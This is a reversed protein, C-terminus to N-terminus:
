YGISNYFAAITAYASLMWKFDQFGPINSFKGRNNLGTKRTFTSSRDDDRTARNERKEKNAEM